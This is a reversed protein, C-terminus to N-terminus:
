LILVTAVNTFRFNCSIREYGREYDIEKGVIRDFLFPPFKGPHPHDSEEM